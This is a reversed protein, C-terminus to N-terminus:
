GNEREKQLIYENQAKQLETIGKKFQADDGNMCIEFLEEYRDINESIFAAETKSRRQTLFMGKITERMTECNQREEETEPPTEKLMKDVVRDVADAIQEKWGSSAKEDILQSQIDEFSAGAAAGTIRIDKKGKAAVLILDDDYAAMWFVTGVAAREAFTPLVSHPLLFCALLFLVPGLLLHILRKYNRM